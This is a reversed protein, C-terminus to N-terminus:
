AGPLGAGCGDCTMWVRGNEIDSDLRGCRRHEQLFAVLHDLLQCVAPCSLPDSLPGVIDEILYVEDGDRPELSDAESPSQAASNPSFRAGTGDNGQSPDVSWYRLAILCGHGQQM